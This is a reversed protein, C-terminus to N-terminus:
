EDNNGETIVSQCKFNLPPYQLPYKIQDDTGDINDGKELFNDSIKIRKGDLVGGVWALHSCASTRYVARSICNVARFSEFTGENKTRSVIIEESRDSLFLERVSLMSSKIHRDVAASVYEDLFDKPEKYRTSLEDSMLTKVSRFTVDIAPELLKKLYSTEKEYFSVIYDDFDKPKREFRNNIAAAQKNLATNISASFLRAMTDATEKRKILASERRKERTRVEQGPKKQGRKRGRRSNFLSDPDELDDIPVLNSKIYYKDGGDIPNLNEFSRIENRNMFGNEFAKAYSEYREKQNARLLGELKFALYYGSEQEEETLLSQNIRMEWRILWPLLTDSLFERSQSEINSYTARRMFGAKHAPIRYIRTVIDEGTFERSELFQSDENTMQVSQWEVGSELIATKNSKNVGGHAAQWSKKLREHKQDDLVKDTKLIGGPRASNGFLTAAHRVEAINLGITEAFLEIPNYGICGNDSLGRLHLIEYERYVKAPGEKPNHEYLLDNDRGASIRIRDPHLPVLMIPDNLGNRVIQSYANGRLSLHGQMMERWEFSTLAPHPRTHLLKYLPHDTVMEKSDGNERYLNLPLQAVSEALIKVCIYVATQRLATKEDVKVGSNVRTGSFINELEESPNTLGGLATSFARFANALRRTFTSNAM